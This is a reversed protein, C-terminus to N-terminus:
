RYQGRCRLELWPRGLCCGGPKIRQTAPPQVGPGCIRVHPLTPEGAAQRHSLDKRVVERRVPGDRPVRQRGTETDAVTSRSYDALVALRAQSLGAARCSAALQRGLAHWAEAVREAEAM